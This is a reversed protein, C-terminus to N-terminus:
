AYFALDAEPAGSDRHRISGRQIPQISPQAFHSPPSSAAISAAPFRSRCRRSLSPRRGHPQAIMPLGVPNSLHQSNIGKTRCFDLRTSGTPTAPGTHIRCSYSRDCVRGSTCAEQGTHRALRPGARQPAPSRYFICCDRIAQRVNPRRSFQAAMPAPQGSEPNWPGSSVAMREIAPRSDDARVAPRTPVENIGAPDSTFHSDILLPLRARETM